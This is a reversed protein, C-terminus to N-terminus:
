KDQKLTKLAQWRPDINDEEATTENSSETEQKELYKIYAKYVDSDKNGNVVDPNVRRFPLNVVMTEYFYDALDVHHAARDIVWVEDDQTDTYEGFKAILETIYAQELWFPELSVGCEVSLSGSFSMRMHLHRDNKTLSIDVTMQSGHIDDVLFHDFFSVEIPFSLEHVGDKLGYFQLRYKTRWRSDEKRM